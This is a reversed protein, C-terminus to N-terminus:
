GGLARHLAKLQRTQWDQFSSRAPSLTETIETVPVGAAKARSVVEQVDPTSNQSNFVFLKVQGRSVQEDVTTRDAASPEAGQSIAQMYSPPTILDLGLAPSLYAFISESAGVPTGAYRQEIAAIQDHYAQLGASEFRSRQDEFASADAPDVKKLDDAIAATVRDV